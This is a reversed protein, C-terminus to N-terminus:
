RGAKGARFRRMYAAFCARCTRIQRGNVMTLRTNETSYEHGNRCHSARYKRIGQRGKAVMDAINDAASGVFLHSPRVCAPNDCRHCVHMNSPIPGTAIEFAVRHAGVKSGNRAVQGYGYVNKCATWPWCRGTMDVKSWFRRVFATSYTFAV